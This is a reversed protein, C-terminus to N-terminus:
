CCCGAGLFGLLVEGALGGSTSAIVTYGVAKVHRVRSGRLGRIYVRNGRARGGERAPGELRWAMRCHGDEHALAELGKLGEVDVHDGRARDGERAPVRM